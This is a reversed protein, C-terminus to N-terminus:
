SALFGTTAILEPALKQGSWDKPERMRKLALWTLPSKWIAGQVDSPCRKAWELVLESATDPFLEPSLKRKSLFDKVALNELEGQSQRLVRKIRAKIDSYRWWNKPDTRWTADPCVMMRDKLNWRNKSPNFGFALAAGLTADTRYLGVPLKFNLIRLQQMASETLAFFNGQIGGEKIMQQRSRVATRGVSPIGTAGLAHPATSLSVEILRLADSNVRAYGDVFFTLSAAPWVYHVYQNWAHAKDGLQISWLRVSISRGLPISGGIKRSVEDALHRNGNVLIDIITDGSSAQIAAIVTMLLQDPSERAAFVAVAWHCQPLIPTNGINTSKEPM